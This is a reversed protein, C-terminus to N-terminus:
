DDGHQFILTDGDQTFPVRTVLLAEVAETPVGPYTQCIINIIQPRDEEFQCANTAWAILGPTHVAPSSALRYTTM